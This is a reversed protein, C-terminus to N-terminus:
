EMGAMDTREERARLGSRGSHCHVPQEWDGRYEEVM